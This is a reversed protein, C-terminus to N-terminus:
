FPKGASVLPVFELHETALNINLGSPAAHLIFLIFGRHLMTPNTLLVCLM